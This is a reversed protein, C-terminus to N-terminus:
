RKKLFGALKKQTKENVTKEYNESIMFIFSSVM